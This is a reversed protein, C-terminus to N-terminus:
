GNLEEKIYTHVHDTKQWDFIESEAENVVSSNNIWSHTCKYGSVM